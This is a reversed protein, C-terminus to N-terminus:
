EHKARLRRIGVYTQPTAFTLSFSGSYDSAFHGNGDAGGYLNASEMAVNAFSGVITGGTGFDTIFSQTGIPQSDFTELGANLLTLTTSQVAPQEVTDYFSDAWASSSMAILGALALGITPLRM